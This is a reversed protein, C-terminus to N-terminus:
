NQEFYKKFAKIYKEQTILIEVHSVVPLQHLARAVAEGTSTRWYPQQCLTSV